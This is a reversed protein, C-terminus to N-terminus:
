WRAISERAGGPKWPAAAGSAPSSPVPTSTSGRGACPCTAPWRSCRPSRTRPPRLRRLIEEGYASHDEGFVEEHVAVLLRVGEADTVPVLRIGEPPVLDAPVDAVDAVMLAEEEGPELGARRLRDPLDAPRDHAYYKWEFTRGLEAFYSVQGAIVSDATSEDLDSWEIGSWGDPEESVYRNVNGARELRGGSVSPSPNARLQEDLAALVAHSDM